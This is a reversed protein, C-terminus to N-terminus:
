GTLLLWLLELLPFLLWLLLLALFTFIEAWLLADEDEEDEIYEEEDELVDVVIGGAVAVVATGIAGWVDGKSWGGRM